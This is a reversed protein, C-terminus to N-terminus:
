SRTNEVEIGTSNCAASCRYVTLPRFGDDCRGACSGDVRCTDTYADNITMADGDADGDDRMVLLTGDDCATAYNRRQSRRRRMTRM